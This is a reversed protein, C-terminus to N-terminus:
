AGCGGVPDGNSGAVVQLSLQSAGTYDAVIDRSCEVGCAAIGRVGLHQKQEEPQWARHQGRQQGGGQDSGPGAPPAVLLRQQAGAAQRRPPDPPKGDDLRNDDPKCAPQQAQRGRHNGPADRKPWGTEAGARSRSRDPECDREDNTQQNGAKNHEHGRKVVEAAEGNEFGPAADASRGVRPPHPGPNVQNQQGPRDPHEDGGTAVM